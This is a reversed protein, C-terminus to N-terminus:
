FYEELHGKFYLINEEDEELKSSPDKLKEELKEIDELPSESYVM